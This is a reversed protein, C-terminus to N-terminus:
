RNAPNNPDLARDAADRNSKKRLFWAFSGIAILLAAGLTFFMLYSVPEGAVEAPPPANQAFAEAASAALAAAGLIMAKM